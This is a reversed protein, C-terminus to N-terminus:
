ALEGNLLAEVAKALAMRSFLGPGGGEETHPGFRPWAPIITLTGGSLSVVTYPGSQRLLPPRPYRRRM